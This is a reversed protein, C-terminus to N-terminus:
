PKIKGNKLIKSLRVYTADTLFFGLEEEIKQKALKQIVSEPMARILTLDPIKDGFKKLIEKIEEDSLDIDEEKKESMKIVESSLPQPPQQGSNGQASNLGTLFMKMMQSDESDSSDPMNSMVDDTIDQSLKRFENFQQILSTNDKERALKFLEIMNVNQDPPPNLSKIFQLKMMRNLMADLEADKPINPIAPTIVNSDTPKMEATKQSSKIIGDCSPEHWALNQKRKFEKGCKSCAYVM